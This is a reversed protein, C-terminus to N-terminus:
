GYVYYLVPIKLGKPLDKQLDYVRDMYGQEIVLGRYIFFFWLICLFIGPIIFIFPNLSSHSMAIATVMISNAILMAGFRSYIQKSALNWLQMISQITFRLEDQNNPKNM